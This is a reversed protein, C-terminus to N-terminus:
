VNMSELYKIEDASYYGEDGGYYPCGDAGIQQTVVGDFFPPAIPGSILQGKDNKVSDPHNKIRAPRIRRMVVHVDNEQLYKITQKAEEFMTPLMMMHVHLHIYRDQQKALNSLKVITEPLVKRKHYEMHYSFNISSLKPLIKAYYDYTRSGNTTVGIAIGKDWMYDVMKEFNPNVCPEGGTFNIKFEKNPMKDVIKDVFRKAVEFEMHPSKNDHTWEDCYSCNFNCRKGLNWEIKFVKATNPSSHEVAVTNM